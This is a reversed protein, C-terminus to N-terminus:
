TQRLDDLLLRGPIENLRSAPNKLIDLWPVRLNVECTVRLNVEQTVRLNVECTLKRTGVYTLVFCM